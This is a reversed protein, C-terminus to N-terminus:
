SVPHPVLPKPESNTSKTFDYVSLLTLCFHIHQTNTHRLSTNTTTTDCCNHHSPGLIHPSQGLDGVGLPQWVSQSRNSQEVVCTYVMLQIYIGVIHSPTRLTQTSCTHPQTNILGGSSVIVPNQSGPLAQKCQSVTSIHVSGSQSSTPGCFLSSAM